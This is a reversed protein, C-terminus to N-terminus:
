SYLWRAFVAYGHCNPCAPVCFNRYGIGVSWGSVMKHIASTLDSKTRSKSQHKEEKRAHIPRPYHVQKLFATLLLACKSGKVGTPLCSPTSPLLWICSTRHKYRTTYSPLGPETRRSGLISDVPSTTPPLSLKFGYVVRLVRWIDYSISQM